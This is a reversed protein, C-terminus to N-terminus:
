NNSISELLRIVIGEMLRDQYQYPDINFINENEFILDVMGNPRIVVEFQSIAFQLPSDVEFSIVYNPTSVSAVINGMQIGEHLVTLVFRENVMKENFTIYNRLEAIRKAEDRLVRFVELPHSTKVYDEYQNFAGELTSTSTTEEM